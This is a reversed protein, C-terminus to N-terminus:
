EPIYSQRMAESAGDKAAQEEQKWQEATLCVRKHALRSGTEKIDQCIVRRSEPRPKAPQEQQPAAAQVQALAPVSIVVLFGTFAAKLM